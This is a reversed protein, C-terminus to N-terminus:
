KQRKKTMKKKGNECSFLGLNTQSLAGTTNWGQEVRGVGIPGGTWTTHVVSLFLPM